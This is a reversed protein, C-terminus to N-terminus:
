ILGFHERIAQFPGKAGSIHDAHYSPFVVLLKVKAGEIADLIGLPIGVSGLPL